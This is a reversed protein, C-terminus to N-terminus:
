ELSGGANGSRQLPERKRGQGVIIRGGAHPKFGVADLAEGFTERHRAAAILEALDRMSIVVTMDETRKLDGVVQPVGNRAKGLVANLEEKAKRVTLPGGGILVITEALGDAIDQRSANRNKQLQRLIRPDMDEDGTRRLHEAAGVTLDRKRNRAM